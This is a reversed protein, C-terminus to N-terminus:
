RSRRRRAPHLSTDVITRAGWSSDSWREDRLPLGGLEAASGCLGGLDFGSSALEVGHEIRLSRDHDIRLDGRIETM